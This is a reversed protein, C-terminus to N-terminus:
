GEKRLAAAATPAVRPDQDKALAELARRCVPDAAHPSLAGACLWRTVPDQDQAFELVEDRLPAAHKDLAICARLADDRTAPDAIWDRTLELAAALLGEDAAAVRAAADRILVDRVGLCALVHPVLAPAGPDIASAADLAAIRVTQASEAILQIIAPMAPAAAPGISRAAALAHPRADDYSSRAPGTELVARIEPLADAAAPGIGALADLACQQDFSSNWGSGGPSYSAVILRLKPIAPASAPGIAALAECIDSVGSRPPNDLMECLRPVAPAGTEGVQPLMRLALDRAVPPADPSLARTCRDALLSRQWGWLRDAPMGGARASMTMSWPDLRARLEACAPGQEDDFGPLMWILVTTPTHKPWGDRLVRPAKHAGGAALALLVALAFALRRRRTRHLRRESRAERGCEPCRRGEVASMDYWCRPCRRLGRPRDGLWWWLLSALSLALFVAASIVWWNAAPGGM